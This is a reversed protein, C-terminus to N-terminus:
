SDPWQTTPMPPDLSLQEHHPPNPSVIHEALFLVEQVLHAIHEGELRYEVATGDRRTSVIGATRMKALHQSVAPSPRKLASALDGVIMPGELLLWAVRLRTPDALLKLVQAAPVALDGRGALQM